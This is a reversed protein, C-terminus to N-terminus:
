LQNSTECNRLYLIMSDVIPGNGGGGMPFLRLTLIVYGNTIDQEGPTYITKPDESNEFIGDGSSQWVSMVPTKNFGRTVFIDDKCISADPGASFMVPCEPRHKEAKLISRSQGIALNASGILVIILFVHNFNVPLKKITKM